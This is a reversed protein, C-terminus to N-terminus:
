FYLSGSSRAAQGNPRTADISNPLAYLTYHLLGTSVPFPFVWKRWRAELAHKQDPGSEASPMIALPEHAGCWCTSCMAAGVLRQVRM